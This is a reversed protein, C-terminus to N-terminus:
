KKMSVCISYLQVVLRKCPSPASNERETKPNAQLLATTSQENDNKLPIGTHETSTKRPSLFECIEPGIICSTRFRHIHKISKPTQLSSVHSWVLNQRQHVVLLLNLMNKLHLVENIYGGIGTKYTINTEDYIECSNPAMKQYRYNYSALRFLFSWELLGSHRNVFFGSIWRFIM